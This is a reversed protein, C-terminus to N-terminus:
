RGKTHQVRNEAPADVPVIGFKAAVAPHANLKEM